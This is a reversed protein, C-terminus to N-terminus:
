ENASKLNNFFHEIANNFELPKDINCLHGANEFVTFESGKIEEKIRFSNIVPTLVDLRGVLVLVPISIEKLLYYSNTRTALAITNSNIGKEDAWSLIMHIFNKIEKNHYSEDSILKRLFEELYKEKGGSRVKMITESRGILGENNDNEAKTGALILSIFKSPDRLVARQLIYGGMSLGCAHVKDLKLHEIIAFLDNVHDEMTFLYDELENSYGLGRADYTIVRYKDKFHEVQSDWMRNCLPFAHLFILPEGKGGYDTVSIDHLKFNIM